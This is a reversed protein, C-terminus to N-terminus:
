DDDLDDILTNLYDEAEELDSDDPLPYDDDDFDDLISSEEDDDDYHDTFYAEQNPKSVVARKPKNKKEKSPTPNTYITFFRHTRCLQRERLHNQWRSM